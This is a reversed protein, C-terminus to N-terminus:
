KKEQKREWNIYAELGLRSGPDGSLHFRDAQPQWLLKEKYINSPDMNGIVPLNAKNRNTYIDVCLKNRLFVKEGNVIKYQTFLLPEFHLNKMDETDPECDFIYPTVAIHCLPKSRKNESLEIEEADDLVVAIGYFGAKPNTQIIDGKRFFRPTNM